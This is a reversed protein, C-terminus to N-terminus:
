GLTVLSELWKPFLGEGHKDGCIDVKIKTPKFYMWEVQGCGIPVWFDLRANGQFKGDTQALYLLYVDIRAM